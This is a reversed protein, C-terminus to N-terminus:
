PTFLKIPNAGPELGTELNGYSKEKNFFKKNDMESIGFCIKHFLRYM